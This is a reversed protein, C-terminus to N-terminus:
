LPTKKGSATVRTGLVPSKPTGIRASGDRELQKLAFVLRDVDARTNGCFFSVRFVSKALRKSIGALQLVLPHKPRWTGPPVTAHNSECASATSLLVGKDSLLLLAKSSDMGPLAFNVLYPSGDERSNIVVQEFGAHLQEILYRKLDCALRLTQEQQRMTVEVARGFGAILPLAETGSRLGREQGGGFATTFMRTGRRVYLAGIGKPGGVKHASISALDVNLMRPLFPLKGFVQVADTHLLAQSARQARLQAVQELPFLYGLENQVGMVSILGTTADLAEALQGLDLSGGRARLYEVQWGERKLSRITRTVSPHELETTIIRGCPERRALCAGMIALNNSETGGSTFVIEDPEVGLAQALTERSHELIRKAEVGRRHRSSPNGFDESLARCVTAAVEPYPKTTAANDFYSEVM